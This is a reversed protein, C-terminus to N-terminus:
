PEPPAPPAGGRRGAGTSDRQAEQLRKQFQERLAYYQARQMPTMFGALEKQESELLDARRHQAQVLQDMYQSIKEQNPGVSDQMATRLGVRAERESRLVENRQQEYKRDTQQWKGMQEDNLNLRRRVVQAFARRVQGRLAQREDGQEQMAQRAARRQEATASGRGARGGAGRQAQAVDRSAGALAFVAAFAAATTVRALPLRSM